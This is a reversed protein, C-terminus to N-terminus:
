FMNSHYVFFGLLNPFVKPIRQKAVLIEIPDIKRQVEEKQRRLYDRVGWAAIGGLIIAVILALKAKM